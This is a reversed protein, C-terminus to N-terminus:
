RHSPQALFETILGVIQQQIQARPRAGEGDRCIMGDGPSSEEILAIAGPKCISMFSFHTADPIQVYQTSAKPLRKVM